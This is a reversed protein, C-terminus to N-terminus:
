APSSRPLHRFVSFESLPKHRCCCHYSHCPGKAPRARHHCLLTGCCLTLCSLLCVCRTGCPKMNGRHKLSEHVYMRVEALLEAFYAGAGGRSRFTNGFGASTTYDTSEYMATAAESRDHYSNVNQGLLTIERM